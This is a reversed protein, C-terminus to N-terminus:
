REIYITKASVAGAPCFVGCCCPLRLRVQSTRLCLNSCLAPVAVCVFLCLVFLCLAFMFEYLCLVSVWESVGFVTTTTTTSRILTPNVSTTGVGFVTDLSGKYINDIRDKGSM